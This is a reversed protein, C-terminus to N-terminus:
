RDGRAGRRCRRVDLGADTPRARRSRARDRGSRVVRCDPRGARGGAAVRAFMAARRVEAVKVGAAQAVAAAMVGDLAGQRLEGGLISRILQQEPETARELLGHLEDRRRAVSGTGAIGALRVVCRDVDSITLTPEDAPTPRVDRITAWGVGIRGLPTSGVGFAVVAEIEDLAAEGLLGALAAVKASRKATSAVLRSTRAVVVFLVDGTQM